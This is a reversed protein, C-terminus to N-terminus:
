RVELVEEVAISLVRFRDMYSQKPLEEAQFTREKRGVRYVGVRRELSLDLIGGEVFAKSIGGVQGVGPLVM